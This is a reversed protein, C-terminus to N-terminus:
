PQCERLAADLRMGIWRMVPVAMSNGLAKYRPGDPCEDAPKGRWPILTHGMVTEISIDYSSQALIKEPIFSSIAAAVFCCLTTLAKECSQSNQGVESIISKMCRTAEQTFREVDSAFEEIEAGCLPVFVSGSRPGLSNKISQQQGAKGAQATQGRTTVTLAALRVFDAVPIHHLFLVSEDAINVSLRLKGLSRIQLVKQEYNILVHVAVLRNQAHSQAPSDLEACLVFERKEEENKCVHITTIKRSDPFGQLREAETPTLRRVQMVTRVCTTSEHKDAKSAGSRLCHAVDPSEAVGYACQGGGNAHSEGRLTHFVEGMVACAQVHHRAELTYAVGEQFGKGGPGANLNPHTAREQIAFAQLCPVVPHPALYAERQSFIEQNSCGM